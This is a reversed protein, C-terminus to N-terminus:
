STSLFSLPHLILIVFLFDADDSVASVGSAADVYDLLNLRVADRKPAPNFDSLDDFVGPPHRIIVPVFEAFTVVVEKNTDPLYFSREWPHQYPIFQHISVCGNDSDYSGISINRGISINALACNNKMSCNDACPCPYSFIANDVSTCYNVVICIDSVKAM